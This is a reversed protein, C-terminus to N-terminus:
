YFTVHWHPATTNGTAHPPEAYFSGVGSIVITAGTPFSTGNGPGGTLGRLYSNLTETARLDIVKKTPGHTSHLWSESGGTVVMECGCATKLAVLQGIVSAAPGEFYLSTCGAGGATPTCNNPTNVTIGAGALQQRQTADSPWPMGQTIAAGGLTNSSNSIVTGSAANGGQWEPSVDDFRAKPITISLNSALNPNISNLIVWAGLAIVLGLIANLMMERGSTKGGIADATAYTIGGLVLMIFALIGAIMILVTFLSKLFGGLTATSAATFGPLPALYQDYGETFYSNDNGLLNPDVIPADFRALYDFVGVFAWDADSLANCDGDCDYLLAPQSVTGRLYPQVPPTAGAVGAFFLYKCDYGVQSVCEEEGARFTVTFNDTPSHHEPLINQISPGVTITEKIAIGDQDSDFWNALMQFLQVVGNTELLIGTNYEDSFVAFTFTKGDCGTTKVDLYVYPPSHQPGNATETYGDASYGSGDADSDRYPNYDSPFDDATIPDMDGIQTPQVGNPNVKMEQIVCAAEARSPAVVVLALLVGLATVIIKKSFSKM